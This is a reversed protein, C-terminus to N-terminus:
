EHWTVSELNWQTKLPFACVKTKGASSPDWVYFSMTAELVRAKPALGLKELDFRVLFANCQEGRRVANAYAEPGFRRDPESFDILASRVGVGGQLVHSTSNGIAPQEDTANAVTLISNVDPSGPNDSTTRTRSWFSGHTLVLGLLAIVLIAAGMIV